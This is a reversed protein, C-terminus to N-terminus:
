RTSKRDEAPKGAFQAAAHVALDRNAFDRAAEQTAGAQRDAGLERADRSQRARLGPASIAREDRFAKSCHKGGAHILQRLFGLFSGLHRPHTAPAFLEYAGASLEAHRRTLVGGRLM